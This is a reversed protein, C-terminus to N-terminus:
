IKGKDFAQKRKEKSSKIDDKSIRIIMLLADVITMLIVGCVAGIWCTGQDLGRMHCLYYGVVGGAIAMLRMDLGITMDKMVSGFNDPKAEGVKAMDAVKGAMANYAVEEVHRRLRILHLNRRRAKAVLSDLADRYTLPKAAAANDEDAEDVVGKGGKKTDKSGKAKDQREKEVAREKAVDDLSPPASLSVNPNAVVRSYTPPPPVVNNAVSKQASSSSAAAVPVSLASSKAGRAMAASTRGNCARIFVAVDATIGAEDADASASAGGLLAASARLWRSLVWLPVLVELDHPFVIPEHETLRSRLSAFTSSVTSFHDGDATRLHTLLSTTSDYVEKAFATSGAIGSNCGWRVAAFELWEVLTGRAAAAEEEDSTAPSGNGEVGDAAKKQKRRQGASPSTHVLRNLERREAELRADIATAM